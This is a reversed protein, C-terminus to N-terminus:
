YINKITYKMGNFTFSENKNKGNFIQGLPSVPSLVMVRHPTVSLYGLSITLYFLGNNTEILSGLGAQNGPVLDRTQELQYLAKKAEVLQSQNQAIEQQMMERTTEYKDGASSKTDEAVVQEAQKIVVEIHAVRDKIQELCAEYILTKSKRDIKM